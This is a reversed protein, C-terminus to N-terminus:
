AAVGGNIQHVMRWVRDSEGGAIVEIPTRNEFGPNHTRLWQGNDNPPLLEALAKGLRDIEVVRKQNARGVDGTAEWGAVSRTSCGLIRALEEQSIGMLQRLAKIQPTRPPPAVLRGAVKHFTFKRIKVRAEQKAPTALAAHKVGARRANADPGPKTLAKLMQHKLM